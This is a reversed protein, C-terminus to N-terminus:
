LKKFKHKNQYLIKALEFDYNTDIDIAEINKAILYHPNRSIVYRNKKMESIKTMFLAGTIYYLKELNQSYPHWAGWTYNIPMKKENVIFQSFNAVSILGDNKFNRKKYINIAKNYSDFLPTTTHCWMLITQENEPISNVVESIVDSWSTINNCFKKDRHLYKCKEKKSIKKIKESNSSIYIEKIEKCKKLKKILIKLLSDNKYFNRLNKSKVRESIEKVPIVAVIKM